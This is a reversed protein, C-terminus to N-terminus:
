EEAVPIEDDNLFTVNVPKNLQGDEDGYSGLKEM